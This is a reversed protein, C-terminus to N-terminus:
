VADDITPYDIYGEPGPTYLTTYDPANFGADNRIRRVLDPNALFLMGFAVLDAEGREIAATGLQADFGGNIVLKGKYITRLM